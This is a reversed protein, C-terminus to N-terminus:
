NKWKERESENKLIGIRSAIAFVGSAILYMPNGTGIGVFLTIWTLLCEVM